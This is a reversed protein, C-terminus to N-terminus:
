IAKRFLAVGCPQQKTSVYEGIFEFISTEKLEAVIRVVGESYVSDHLMLFGGKNLMPVYNFIERVTGEYSLDADLVILDYSGAAREVIAPDHSNGIIENRKMKGLVDARYRAKFHKNEDILTINEPKFFHNIISTLGGAAVGVELYSSISQGSELIALILPALEDPIQQVHVGGEYKGGFVDLSDSGSDLIFKEIEELHVKNSTIEKSQKKSM